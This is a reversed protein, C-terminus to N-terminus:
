ASAAIVNASGGRRVMETLAAADDAPIATVGPLDGLGCAPTAIVPVGNALAQLLRRPSNEILAPQVVADVSNLWDTGDRTARRTRLGQWFNAGELESGVLVIELDLTRAADRLEYAGSRATTPGPFAIARMHNTLQVPEARCTLPLTSAPAPLHWPLRVVRGPFLAAIDTHPTIIHHAAGLAASESRVLAAPARFDGLLTREPHACLAADLRSHIERLPLRTMLVDFTRGGLVGSQWLAPILSQSAVVHTIDPRLIRALAAARRAADDLQAQRQAPGESALRRARFARWLTAMAASEVAAYGSTDWAYRPQSWRTGDLPLALVDDAAHNAQLYADFEPWREDVLWATRRTTHALAAQEALRILTQAPRSRHQFCSVMGCQLCNHESLAIKSKVNAALPYRTTLPSDGRKRKKEEKGNRTKEQLFRVVLETATLHAEICFPQDSRFRLDLYNWFVTADRDEEAASGPVIQTHPHRELIELGGRLAADYLANSLQCLGGGIAPVLCGERLQRGLVYGRRTTARGIQKWFSFVGGSPVVAGNLRRLARRLNEVKGQQMLREALAEDVWLPTVSEALVVPFAAADGVPWRTVGQAADQAGRRMKLLTAKSRFIMTSARTPKQAVGARGGTTETTEAQVTEMTEVM